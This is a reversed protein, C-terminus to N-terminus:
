KKDGKIIKTLIIDLSQQETQYPKLTHTFFSHDFKFPPFSDEKSTLNDLPLSLSIMTTKLKERLVRNPSKASLPTGRKRSNKYCYFQNVILMKGKRDISRCVTYHISPFM